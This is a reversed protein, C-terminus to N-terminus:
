QIVFAEVTELYTKDDFCGGVAYLTNNISGTAFEFRITSMDAIPIWEKPHRADTLMEASSLPADECHTKACGGM